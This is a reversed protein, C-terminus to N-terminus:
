LANAPREALLREKLNSDLAAEELWRGAAPADVESWRSFCDGVNRRRSTDDTLTVALNAALAPTWPLAAPIYAEIASERATGPPLTRIWRDAAVPDEAAWFGMLRQIAMARDDMAVDAILWHVASEPKQTAWRGAVGAVAQQRTAPDSVELAFKGAAAPDRDAWAEAVTSIAIAKELGEPLGKAWKIAAAPDATAWDGAINTIVANKENGPPLDSLRKAAGASDQHCWLFWVNHLAASRAGGQPLAMAWQYASRGDRQAWAEVFSAIAADRGAGAPMRQLIRTVTESKESALKAAAYTVLEVNARSEPLMAAYAFAKLPELDSWHHLAAQLLVARERFEPLSKARDLGGPIEGPTLKTGLEALRTLREHPQRVTLIQTLRDQFSQRSTTNPAAEARPLCFTAPLLAAASLVLFTFRPRKM